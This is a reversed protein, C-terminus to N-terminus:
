ARDRVAALVTRATDIDAESCSVGSAVGRLTRACVSVMGNVAHAALEPGLLAAFEDAAECFRRDPMPGHLSAQWHMASVAGELLEVAVAIRQRDGADLPRPGAQHACALLTHCSSFTARYRALQPDAPPLHGIVSVVYREKRGNSSTDRLRSGTLPDM